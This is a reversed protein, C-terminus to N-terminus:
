VTSCASDRTSLVTTAVSEIADFSSLSVLALGSCCDDPGFVGPPDVTVVCHRSCASRRFLVLADAVNV